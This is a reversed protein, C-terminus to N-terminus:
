MPSALVAMIVAAIFAGFPLGYFWWRAWLTPRAEGDARRGAVADEIAHSLRIIGTTAPSSCLEHPDLPHERTLLISGFLGLWNMRREGM